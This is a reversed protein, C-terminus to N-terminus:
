KGDFDVGVLLKEGTPAAEVEAPEDQAEAEAVSVATANMPPLEWMYRKGVRPAKIGMEKAARRLTPKSIPDVLGAADAKIDEGDIPGNALQEALFHKARELETDPGGAPRGLPRKSATRGLSDDASKNIKEGWVIYPVSAPEPEGEIPIQQAQIHYSIGGGKSATLNSKMRCMMFSDKVEGEETSEDRIFLWASRAVGIFAMAGGVRSIADLESKKNLHMVFLVAVNRRMAMLRLPTLVSRVSQEAIMNVNGLYSSIPDIVILRIAPHKDLFVELVPLDIDLRVESGDNVEVRKVGEPFHVKTLDAGASMLRPVATDDEDDEGLLMLVESPPLTNVCDPFNIGATVRAVLDIGALSKGNDPNGAYLTIKNSTVRDPWLWKLKKPKIQAATHSMMEAPAAPSTAAASEQKSSHQFEKGKLAADLTRNRYDERDTWKERRGLASASFYKEMRARDNTLLRALRNMLALDASSQDDGWESINGTWLAKFKQDKNQTILLYPLSIDAIKPVGDGGFKNGTCTFYRGAERGHYIEIGDHDKSLKRGGKPLADCEFFTHLGNGSPSLETYPNGLSALIALAYSDASGDTNIANDFDVGVFGTGGLEFGVGDYGGGTLVDAADSAQEFTAWTASDNAKARRGTKADYPIKTEKGDRTEYKWVVWNALAKLEIPINQLSM